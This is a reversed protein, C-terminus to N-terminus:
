DYPTIDVDPLKPTPPDLTDAIRDLIAALRDQTAAIRVLTVAIVALHDPERKIKPGTASDV